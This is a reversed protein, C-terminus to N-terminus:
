ANKKPDEKKKSKKKKEVFKEFEKIARKKDSELLWGLDVRNKTPLTQWCNVQKQIESDSKDKYSKTM